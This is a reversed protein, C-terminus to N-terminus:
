AITIKLTLNLFYAHMQEALWDRMEDPATQGNGGRNTAIRQWAKLDQTKLLRHMYLMPQAPEGNALELSLRHESKM